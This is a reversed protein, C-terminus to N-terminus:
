PWLQKGRRKVDRIPYASSVWAEGAPTSTREGIATYRRQVAGNRFRRPICKVAVFLLNGGLGSPQSYYCLTRDDRDAYISLPDMITQEVSGLRRDMQARNLKALVSHWTGHTMRVVRGQPDEEEFVLFRCGEGCRDHSLSPLIPGFPRLMAM